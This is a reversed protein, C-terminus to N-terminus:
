YLYWRSVMISSYSVNECEPRNWWFMLYLYPIWLSMVAPTLSPPRPTHHINPRIYYERKPHPPNTKRAPPGYSACWLSIVWLMPSTSSLGVLPHNSRQDWPWVCEGIPRVPWPVRLHLPLLTKLAWYSRSFMPKNTGRPPRPPKCSMIAFEPYPYISFRQPFIKMESLRPHRSYNWEHNTRCPRGLRHDILWLSCM